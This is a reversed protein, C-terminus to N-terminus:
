YGYEREVISGNPTIDFRVWGTGGIEARYCGPSLTQAPVTTAWRPSPAKGYAILTPVPGRSNPDAGVMQWLPRWGSAGNDACLTVMLVQLNALPLKPRHRERALGFVPQQATSSGDLWISTREPCASLSAGMAVLLAVRAASKLRILIMEGSDVKGYYVFV